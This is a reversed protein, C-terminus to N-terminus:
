KYRAYIEVGKQKAKEIDAKSTPDIGYKSLKPIVVRTGPRIRDPHGLFAKNEEYIYPWLHYNGYHHKAMTTLYRTTSITDYVKQDSPETGVEDAEKDRAIEEDETAVSDASVTKTAVPAEVVKITKVPKNDHEYEWMVYKYIAFFAIATVAAATIFGVIFGHGFKGKGAPKEEAYEDNDDDEANAEVVRDANDNVAECEQSEVIEDSSEAPEEEYTLSEEDNQSEPTESKGPQLTLEYEETNETPESYLPIANEDQDEISEIEEDTVDDPIEVTEFASFPANVSAALEKSPVFSVRSHVPIRMEEGTAVNVSKREDIEVLKFTGFGKIKVSEGEALADSVTSSFERLFDECLKRSEGSIDALLSAADQFTIKSNM